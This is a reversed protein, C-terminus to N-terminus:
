TDSCIARSVTQPKVRGHEDADLWEIQFGEYKELHKLTKTIAPHETRSALIWKAGTKERMAYAAGRIALNDSESGCSTFIIEDPQCNMIAAVMKRAADITDEAVQCYRYDSSSNGLSASFFPTM